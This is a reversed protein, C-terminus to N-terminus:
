PRAADPWVQAAEGPHRCRANGIRGYLSQAAADDKALVMIAESRAGCHFVRAWGSSTGNKERMTFDVRGDRPPAFTTALGGSQLLPGLLRPLYATEINNPADLLMVFATGDSLQVRDATKAIARWGPLDLVLASGEDRHLASEQKADPACTFTQVVRRHLRESDHPAATMIFIDRAGCVAVSFWMDDGFQIGGLPKGDPGAVEVPTVKGKPLPGIGGAFTQAMLALDQPTMAKGNGKDWLAGVTARSDEVGVIFAGRAYDRTDRLAKGHPLALTFGPLTRTEFQVSAGVKTFRMSSIIRDFVPKWTPAAGNGTACTLAYGKDDVVALLLDFHLLVSGTTGMTAIFGLRVAPTGNVTLRTREIPSTIEAGPIKKFDVLGKEVYSDLTTGLPLQETSVNASVLGFLTRAHFRLDETSPLLQWSAPYQLQFDGDPSDFVKTDVSAAQSAVQAPRAVGRQGTPTQPATQKAACGLLIALGISGAKLTRPM